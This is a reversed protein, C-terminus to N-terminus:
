NNEGTSAYRYYYITIYEGETQTYYTGLAPSTSVVRNCMEETVPQDPKIEQLKVKAGLSVLLKKAEEIDMNELELPIQLILEDAVTFNISKADTLPDIVTGKELSQAIITGIKYDSNAETIVNVSFGASELLAKVENIDRGVYNDITYFTGASVYLTIRSAREIETGAAPVSYIVLGKALNDTSQYQINEVEIYVNNLAEEAQQLTYGSVDPIKIKEIPDVKGGNLLNIMAFILFALFLSMCVGLVAPLVAKLGKKEEEKKKKVKVQIPVVEEVKKQEVKNLNIRNENARNFDLCTVLDNYMEEASKYRKAPDKATAKIVINEVSQPLQPNFNRVSPIEDHIHKLAIEVGSEGTFPIEGTLMEYFVIGLAYIDSQASAANGKALEPALYAATGMITNSQTIEDEGKVAAIGFDSLKVTGDAKVMVNQSKIDRHIIGNRNAHSVASVLQKMINIAEDQNMVGRQRILQRLTPGHIYEMVIYYKGNDYGVDYIEVINPHSMNTIAEAERKFRQINIDDEALDNRLVKVAVERKLISDIALYVNAMGGRGLEKVVIYRNGILEVAM